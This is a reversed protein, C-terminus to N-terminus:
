APVFELNKRVLNLRGAAFINQKLMKEKKDQLSDWMMEYEPNTKQNLINPRAKIKYASELYGQVAEFLLVLVEQPSDGAEVINFELGAAYWADDEKFVVFRISGKQLTNKYKM